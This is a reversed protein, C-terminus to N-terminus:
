LITLMRRAADAEAAQKSRASGTAKKGDPLRVEVYFVAAHPPGERRIVSYEPSVKWCAQVMEQLKGKPNDAWVDGNLSMIHPVFLTKFIKDTARSGGDLWAAGIIAEMADELTSARDRGGSREEGRGMKLFDGLEIKRAVEALAKGSTVRSRLSTMDGEPKDLYTNFLYAATALGLVADGLFELRQNDSNIGDHEFRFSRHMLARELLSKDRFRYGISKELVKYPNSRGLM